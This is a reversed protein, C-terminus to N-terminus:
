FMNWVKEHDKQQQSQIFTELTPITKQETNNWPASLNIVDTKSFVLKHHAKLAAWM